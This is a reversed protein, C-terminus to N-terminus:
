SKDGGSAEEAPPEPEPEPKQLQELSNPAGRAARNTAAKDRDLVLAKRWELVSITFELMSIQTDVSVEADTCMIDKWNIEGNPKRSYRITLQHQPDKVEDSM